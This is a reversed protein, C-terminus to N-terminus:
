IKGDRSWAIGRLSTSPAIEDSTRLVRGTKADRFELHAKFNLETSNVVINSDPSWALASPWKDCHITLPPQEKTMDWLDIRKQEHALSALVKGDPSWALGLYYDARYGPLSRIQRGTAVEWLRITQDAGSSALTKGDPAWAVAGVPATHGLLLKVLKKGN